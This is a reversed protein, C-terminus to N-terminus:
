NPRATHESHGNNVTHWHFQRNFQQQLYTKIRYPQAISDQSAWLGYSNM